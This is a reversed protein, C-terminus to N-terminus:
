RTAGQLVIALCGLPICWAAAIGVWGINDALYNVLARM